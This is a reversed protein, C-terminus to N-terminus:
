FQRCAWLRYFGRAAEIKQADRGPSFDQLLRLATVLSRTPRLAAAGIRDIDQDTGAHAQAPIHQPDTLLLQAVRQRQGKLLNLFVLAAGVADAGASQQFYRPHKIDGDCEEEVVHVRHAGRCNRLARGPVRKLSVRQVRRLGTVEYAGKVIDLVRDDAASQKIQRLCEHRLRAAIGGERVALVGLSTSRLCRSAPRTRWAFIKSSLHGLGRGRQGESGPRQRRKVSPRVAALTHNHRSERYM